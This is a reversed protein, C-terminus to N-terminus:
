LVDPDLPETTGARVEAMATAALRELLQPSAKFSADWRREDNLEDLIWVALQEQEVDPLKAAEHFARKLQRVMQTAM